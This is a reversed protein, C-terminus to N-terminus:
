SNAGLVFDFARSVYADLAAQSEQGDLLGQVDEAVARYRQRVVDTTLGIGQVKRLARGVVLAVETVLFRKEASDEVQETLLRALNAPGMPGKLRFDLASRSHVPQALREHLGELGRSIRRIRQMLFRSTDVRKHPDLEIALRIRIRAERRELIRSLLRHVPGGAALMELLTDLDIELWLDPRSRSESDFANVPLRGTHTVGDRVWRIALFAPPVPTGGDSALEVAWTRPTGSDRHQARDVLVRDDPISISWDEFAGDMNPAFGIRLTTVPEKRELCAWAFFPPLPEPGGEDPPNEERPDISNVSEVRDADPFCGHVWPATRGDSPATFCVNAEFNRPAGGIGLGSLSANSSGILLLGDRGEREWLISKAHLPRREEQFTCDFPRLRVAFESKSTLEVLLESPLEMNWRDGAVRHGPAYVHLMREGRAALCGGFANTWAHAASQTNGPWFPSMVRVEDPLTREGWLERMSELVSPGDGPALLVADVRTASRAWDKPLTLSDALRRITAISGLARQRPSDSPGETGDHPDPVLATMRELFSLLEELVPIPVEGHEHFDLPAFVELNRRYAPETLNASGVIARIHREWALITIKAHQCAQREVPVPLLDWALTASRSVHRRDALVTVAAAGIREECERLWPRIEEPTTEFTFARALLEEEFFTADFTFTSAVIAVVDGAGPPPDWAALLRNAPDSEVRRARSM